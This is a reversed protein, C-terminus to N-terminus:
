EFLVEVPLFMNGTVLAAEGRGWGSAVAQGEIEEKPDFCRWKKEWIRWPKRKQSDHVIVGHEMHVM